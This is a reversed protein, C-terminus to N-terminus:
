AKNLADQKATEWLTIATQYETIDTITRHGTMSGTAPDKLEVEGQTEYWQVAHVSSDIFSLDLNTYPEGDIIVTGDKPIITLRM